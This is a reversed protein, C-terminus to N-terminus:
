QAATCKWASCGVSSAFTCWGMRAGAATIGAQGGAADLGDPPRGGTGAGTCRGRSAGEDGATCCLRPLSSAILATKRM